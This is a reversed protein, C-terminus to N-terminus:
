LNTSDALTVDAGKAGSTANAALGATCDFYTREFDEFEFPRTITTVVSAPRGEIRQVQMMYAIVHGGIFVRESLPLAEQEVRQARCVEVFDDPFGSLPLTGVYGPKTRVGYELQECEFDAVSRYAFGVFRDERDDFGLHYITSTM